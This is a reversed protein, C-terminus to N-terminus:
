KFGRDRWKRIKNFESDPGDKWKGKGYKADLLREAFKKGSEDVYPREGRAWSPTDSSKEKGSGSVPTKKKREGEDDGKDHLIDPENALPETCGGSACTGDALPTPTLVMMTAMVAAGLPSAGAVTAARSGMMTMVSSADAVQTAGTNANIPNNRANQQGDLLAAMAGVGDVSGAEM